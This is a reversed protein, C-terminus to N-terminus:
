RKNSRDTTKVALCDGAPAQIGREPATHTRRWHEALCNGLVEAFQQQAPSLNGAMPRTKSPNSSGTEQDNEDPM